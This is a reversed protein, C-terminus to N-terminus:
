TLSFKKEAKMTIEEIEAIFTYLNQGEFQSVKIEDRQFDEPKVGIVEIIDKWDEEINIAESTLCKILPLNKQFGEVQARLEQCVEATDPYDENLKKYLQLCNSNWKKVEGEIKNYDQGMLRDQTWENLGMKVDYSMTILDFFPKFAKDIDDLEPYPTEPQGFLTEREHFQKVQNFAKDLDKRLNFCDM